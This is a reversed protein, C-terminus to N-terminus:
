HDPGSCVRARRFAARNAGALAVANREPDVMLERNRFTTLASQAAILRQQAANLEALSNNIADRQIRANIRNVLEEGLLLLTEALDRASEPRFARARLTSIGTKDTYVVTVMRQFYRYFEEEEPGYILSPYRALFDGGERNFTNLPPLRAKLKEIADRSTM